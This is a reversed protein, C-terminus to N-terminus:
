PNKLKMIEEEHDMIKDQLEFQHLTLFENFKKMESLSAFACAFANKVTEVFEDETIRKVPLSKKEEPFMDLQKLRVIKSAM